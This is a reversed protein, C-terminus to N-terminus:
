SYILSVLCNEVGATAAPACFIQRTLKFLRPFQDRNKMSYQLQRLVYQLASQVRRLKALETVCNTAPAKLGYLSM